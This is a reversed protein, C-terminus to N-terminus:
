MAIQVSHIMSPYLNHGGQRADRPTGHRGQIQIKGRMTGWRLRWRLAWMMARVKAAVCQANPRVSAPLAGSRQDFHQLLARRLAAGM